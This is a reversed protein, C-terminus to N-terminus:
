VFIGAQGKFFMTGPCKVQQNYEEKDRLCVQNKFEVQDQNFLKRWLKNLKIGKSIRYIKSNM